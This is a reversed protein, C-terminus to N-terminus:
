PSSLVGTLADQSAIRRLELEDIVLRSFSTLITLEQQSFERPATDIACLTGVNYGDDMTLPIGAYSRIHPDGTVLPTEAFAPDRRADPVVFPRKGQIAHTCFSIHRPTECVSLGRSAKFWQRDRDVLSVACIPVNLTQKVLSVIREFPAEPPSDLIELDALSKLRGEEDMRLETPM